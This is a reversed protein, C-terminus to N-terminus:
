LVDLKTLISDFERFYKSLEFFREHGENITKYNKVNTLFLMSYTCSRSDFTLIISFINSLRTCLNNLKYKSNCILRKKYHELFHTLM